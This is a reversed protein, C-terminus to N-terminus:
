ALGLQELASFVYRGNHVSRYRQGRVAYPTAVGDKIRIKGVMQAASVVDDSEADFFQFEVDLFPFEHALIECDDMLMESTPYGDTVPLLGGALQGNGMWCGSYTGEVSAIYDLNLNNTVQPFAEPNAFSRVFIEAAQLETIDAGVVRFLPYKTTFDFM